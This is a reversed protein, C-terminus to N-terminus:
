LIKEVLLFIFSIVVTSALPISWDRGFARFNLDGPLRGFGIRRLLPRLWQILMLALFTVLLWRLM